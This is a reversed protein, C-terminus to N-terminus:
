LCFATAQRCAFAETWLLFMCIMVLVYKYRVFGMCKGSSSHDMLCNLVDMLTLCTHPIKRSLLPSFFILTLTTVICFIILLATLLLVEYSTFYSVSFHQVRYSNLLAEITHSVFTTLPSGMVIIETAKVLLSRGYHSKLSHGWAVTDWPQSYHDIAPGTYQPSYGLPMRKRKM